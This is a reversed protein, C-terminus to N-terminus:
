HGLFKKYCQEVTNLPIFGKEKTVSSSALYDLANIRPIGKWGMLMLGLTISSKVVMIYSNENFAPTKTGPFGKGGLRINTPLALVRGQLLACSLHKVKTIEM